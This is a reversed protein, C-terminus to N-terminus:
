IQSLPEHANATQSIHLLTCKFYKMILAVNLSLIYLIEKLILLFPQFFLLILDYLQKIQSGGFIYGKTLNM